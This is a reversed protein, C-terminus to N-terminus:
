KHDYQYWTTNSYIGEQVNVHDGYTGSLQSASPGHFNPHLYLTFPHLADQHMARRRLIEEVHPASQNTCEGSRFKCMHCRNTWVRSLNQLHCTSTPSSSPAFGDVWADDINYWMVLEELHPHSHLFPVIHKPHPCLRQDLHRLKPFRSSSFLNHIFKRLLPSSSYEDYEDYDYIRLKILNPYHMSPLSVLPLSGAISLETLHDQSRIDLAIYGFEPTIVGSTWELRELFRCSNILCVCATSNLANASDSKLPTSLVLHTIGCTQPPTIHVWGAMYGDDDICEIVVERLYRMDALDVAVGAVAEDPDGGVFNIGLRLTRINPFASLDTLISSGGTKICAASVNFSTVRRTLTDKLHTVIPAMAGESEPTMSLYVSVQRNGLLSTEFLYQKYSPVGVGDASHILIDGWLASDQLAVDRWRRCVSSLTQRAKRLEHVMSIFDHSEFPAIQLGVITPSCTSQFVRRLIEVPANVALRDWNQLHRKEFMEERLTSLLEELLQVQSECDDPEVRHPESDSRIVVLLHVNVSSTM